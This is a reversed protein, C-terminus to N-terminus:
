VGSEGSVAIRARPSPRPRPAPRPAPKPQMPPPGGGGVSLYGDGGASLSAGATEQYVPGDTVAYTPNSLSGHSAGGPADPAEAYLADSEREWRQGRAQGSRPKRAAPDSTRRREYWHANMGRRVAGQGAGRVAGRGGGRGGRGSASMQLRSVPSLGCSALLMMM